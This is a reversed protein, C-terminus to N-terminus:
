LTAALEAVLASAGLAVAPSLDQGWSFDAGEVGYIALYRPLRDLVGAMAVAEAVGFTHGTCRLFRSPLPERLANLRHIRGPEGQARVADVVILDDAEDFLALLATGDGVLRRVALDPLQRSLNDVVWPGVGDDRQHPNGVGVVLTM